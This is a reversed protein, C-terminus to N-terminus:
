GGTEYLTERTQLTGFANQHVFRVASVSNHATEAIRQIGM